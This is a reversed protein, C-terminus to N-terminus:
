TTLRKMTESIEERWELVLSVIAALSALWYGCASRRNSRASADNREKLYVNFDDAFDKIPQDIDAGFVKMSSGQRKGPREQVVFPPISDKSVRWHHRGLLFFLLAFVLWIISIGIQM